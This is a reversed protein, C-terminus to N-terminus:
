TLDVCVCVCLVIIGTQNLVLPEHSYVHTYLMRYVNGRRDSMCGPISQHPWDFLSGRNIAHTIPKLHTHTHTHMRTHM